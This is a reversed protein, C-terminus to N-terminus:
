RLRHTRHDLDESWDIDGDPTWMGIVEGDMQVKFIWDISGLMTGVRYRWYKFDRMQYQRDSSEYNTRDYEFTRRWGIRTLEQASVAQMSVPQHGKFLVLEVDDVGRQVFEQRNGALAEASTHNGIRNEQIKFDSEFDGEAYDIPHLRQLHQVRAVIEGYDLFSCCWNIYTSSMRGNQRSSGITHLLHFTTYPLWSSERTSAEFQQILAARLTDSLKEMYQQILVNGLPASMAASRLHEDALVEIRNRRSRVDQDGNDGPPLALGIRYFEDRSWTEIADLLSKAEFGTQAVVGLRASLQEKVGEEVLLLIRELYHTNKMDISSGGQGYAMDNLFRRMEREMEWVKERRSELTAKDIPTLRQNILLAERQQREHNSAEKSNMTKLARRLRIREEEEASLGDSTRPLRQISGEGATTRVANGSVTDTEEDGRRGRNKGDEESDSGDDGGFGNKQRRQGKDGRSKVRPNSKAASAPPPEAETFRGGRRAVHGAVNRIKPSESRLPRDELTTSKSLEDRVVKAREKATLTTSDTIPKNYLPSSM